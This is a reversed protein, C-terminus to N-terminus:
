RCQEAPASPEPAPVPVYPAPDDLPDMPARGSRLLDAVRRGAPTLAYRASSM